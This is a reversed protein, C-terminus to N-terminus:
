RTSIPVTQQMQTLWDEELEVTFTQRELAKSLTNDDMKSVLMDKLADLTIPKEPAAAPAPAPTPAAQGGRPTATQGRAGGQAGRQAPQGGRAPTQAFALASSLMVGFVLFCYGRHRMMHDKM